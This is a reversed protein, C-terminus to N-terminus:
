VRWLHPAEAREDALTLEPVYRRVPADLEVRGEAVLRM